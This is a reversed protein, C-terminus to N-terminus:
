TGGNFTVQAAGNGNPFALAANLTLDNRVVVSDGNQLTVNSDVTLGDWYASKARLTVGGITTLRGGKITGSEQVWSGTQDNLALTTGTNDLVGTLKVTGGAREIKGLDAFTFTGGLSLTGQNLRV